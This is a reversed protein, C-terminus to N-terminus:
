KSAVKMGAEQEGRPSLRSDIMDRKKKDLVESRNKKMRKECDNTAVAQRFCFLCCGVFSASCLLTVACQLQIDGDSRTAVCCILHL